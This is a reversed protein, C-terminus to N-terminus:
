KDLYKKCKKIHEKLKKNVEKDGNGFCQNYGLIDEALEMSYKIFNDTVEVKNM